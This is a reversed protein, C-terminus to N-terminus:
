GVGDISRLLRYAPQYGLQLLEAVEKIDDPVAPDDWGERTHRAVRIALQVNRAQPSSPDSDDTILVLLRPLSWAKMLAHQLQSLTIHLIEQQATASRLTPNERQLRDVERALGPARVWLLLEAFDHLLAAERIVAVDHDMRHVAFSTAFRCARHARHLVKRFGALAWPAERLLDEVRPLSGFARFFPSIGMMVLAEVLTEADGRGRGRVLGAVHALVRIILLPDDGLVRSLGHADVEDERLALAEISQSSSALVPLLGADFRAMWSEVDGPPEDIFDPTDLVPMALPSPTIEWANDARLAAPKLRRRSGERSGM